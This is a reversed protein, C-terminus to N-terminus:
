RAKRDRAFPYIALKSLLALSPYLFYFLDRYHWLEHWDILQWGSRSRHARCGLAGMGTTLCIEWLVLRRMIRESRAPASFRESRAPVSFRESRAPASFRESFFNVDRLKPYCLPIFQFHNALAPSGSIPFNNIRRLKVDFDSRWFTSLLM